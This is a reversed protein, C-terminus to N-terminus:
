ARLKRERQTTPIDGFGAERCLELGRKLWCRAWFGGQPFQSMKPLNNPEM